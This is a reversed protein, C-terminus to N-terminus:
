ALSNQLTTTSLIIHNKSTSTIDEYSFTPESTKPKSSKSLINYPKSLFIEEDQIRDEKQKGKNVIIPQPTDYHTDQYANQIIKIYDDALSNEKGKCKDLENALLAQIYHM